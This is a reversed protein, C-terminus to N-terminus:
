FAHSFFPNRHHNQYVLVVLWHQLGNAVSFQLVFVEGNFAMGGFQLLVVEATELLSISSYKM